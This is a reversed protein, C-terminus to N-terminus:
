AVVVQSVGGPRRAPASRRRCRTAQHRCERRSRRRWRWDRAPRSRQRPRARWSGAPALWRGALGITLLVGAMVSCREDGRIERRLRSRPPAVAARAAPGPGQGIVGKQSEPIAPGARGYPVAIRAPSCLSNHRGPLLRLDPVTGARERRGPLGAARPRQARPPTGVPGQGDRGRDRQYHHQPPHGRRRVPPVFGSGERGGVPGDGLQQPQEAADVGHVTEIVENEPRPDM